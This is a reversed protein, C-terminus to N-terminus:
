DALWAEAYAFQIGMVMRELLLVSSHTGLRVVVIRNRFGRPYVASHHDSMGAPFAM